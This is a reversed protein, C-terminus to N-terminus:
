NQELHVFKSSNKLIQDNQGNPTARSIQSTNSDAEIQPRGRNSYRRYEFRQRALYKVNLDLYKENEM